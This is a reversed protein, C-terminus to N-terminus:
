SNSLHAAMRQLLKKSQRLSATKNKRKKRHKLRRKWNLLRKRSLLTIRKSSCSSKKPKESNTKWYGTSSKCNLKKTLCSNAWITLMDSRLWSILSPRHKMHSSFNTSRRYPHSVELENQMKLGRDSRKENTSRSVAPQKWLLSATKPRSRRKKTRKCSAKQNTRTLCEQSSCTWIPTKPLLPCKQTVLSPGTPWWM